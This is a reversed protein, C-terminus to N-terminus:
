HVKAHQKKHKKSFTLLYLVFGPIASFVMVLFFLFTFAVSKEENVLLFHYGYIFVLERAGVGGITLPITAAVSSAMFLTLYDFYNDGIWVAQLLCFACVLQGLQVLLSLQNTKLFKKATEAKWIYKFFFYLCPITGVLVLGNFYGMLPKEAFDFSSIYFLVCGLVVLVSLGSLRDALTVAALRKFSVENDKKLQAVKYVDGGVSGPLFINFFMGIYYLRLNNARSLVIGINQYFVNIRDAALIKSLNFALLGLVFWLVKVKLLAAWIKDFEVKQFVFYLAVGSLLVKLV